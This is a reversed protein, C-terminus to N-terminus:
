KYFWEGFNFFKDVDIKGWSLFGYLLGGGWVREMM